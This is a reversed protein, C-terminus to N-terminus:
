TNFMAVRGVVYTYVLSFKTLALLDTKVLRRINKSDKKSIGM